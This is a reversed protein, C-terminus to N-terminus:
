SLREILIYHNVAVFTAFLDLLGLLADNSADMAVILDTFVTLLATETYHFKLYASLHTSLLVAATLHGM